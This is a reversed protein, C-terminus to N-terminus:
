RAGIATIGGEVCAYVRDGGRVRIAVGGTFEGFSPLTAGNAHLHFCPARLVRPRRGIRVCPHVHGAWVYAGDIAQPEHVYAFPGRREEHAVERMRWAAPMARVSREHNGRILVVEADIGDRWQTVSARVADTLGLGHHIWDGLICVRTPQYKDVLRRLRGLDHATGGAPVPVGSVRFMAGKGIHVDAVLLDGLDPIWAAREGDLVVSHGACEVVIGDDM